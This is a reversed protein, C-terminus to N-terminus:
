NPKVWKALLEGRSSVGYRRYLSKVYVHVTHRSLGMKAAAQKESDGALLSSLTQQLRPPLHAVDAALLRVPSENWSQKAADPLRRPREGGNDSGNMEDGIMRFINAILRRKKEIPDGSIGDLPQLLRVVAQVDVSRRTDSSNLM